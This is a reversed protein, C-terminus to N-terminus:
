VLQHDRAIRFRRAVHREEPKLEATALWNVRPYGQGSLRGVRFQQVGHHWRMDHIGIGREDKFAAVEAATPMDSAESSSAGPLSGHASGTGAPVGADPREGEDDDVADLSSDWGFPAEGLVADEGPGAEAAGQTPEVEAPEEASPAAAVNEGDDAEVPSASDTVGLHPVHRFHREGYTAPNRRAPSPLEIGDAAHRDQFGDMTAREDMSLPKIVTDYHRILDALNPIM